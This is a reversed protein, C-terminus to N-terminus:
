NAEVDLQQKSLLPETEASVIKPMERQGMIAEYRLKERYAQNNLEFNGAKAMVQRVAWAYIEWRDKGKDAHNQFLWENPKFPPLEIVNCKGSIFLSLQMVALPFFPVIDWAPSLTGARYDLVIPKVCRESVFAGKKFAILYKGNSTGGEPFM